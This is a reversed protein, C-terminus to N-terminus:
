KKIYRDSPYISSATVFCPFSQMGQRKKKKALACTGNRQRVRTGTIQWAAKTKGENLWEERVGTKWCREPLTM